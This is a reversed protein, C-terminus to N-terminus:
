WEVEIEVPCQSDAHAARKPLLDQSVTWGFDGRPYMMHGSRAHVGHARPFYGFSIQSTVPISNSVANYHVAATLALGLCSKQNTVSYGLVLWSKQSM